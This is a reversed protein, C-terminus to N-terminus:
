LRMRSLYTQSLKEHGTGKLGKFVEHDEVVLSVLPWPGGSGALSARFCVSSTRPSQLSVLQTEGLRLLLNLTEGLSPPPLYKEEGFGNAISEMKVVIEEIDFGGIERGTSRCLLALTVLMLAEFPACMSVAKLHSSHSSDLSVKMVDSIRVIPPKDSDPNGARENLVKEAAARCIHFAKRLDGSQNATKKAAIVVADNEFLTLGPAAQELKSKLIATIQEHNYAKFICRRSGIRSQVRAHLHEPLNLTNSIGLVVLKRNGARMPWDFFNYLVSQNKTVLYDIEDLLVITVSHSEQGQEGRTFYTELKAAATEPTCGSVGSIKEWLYVYAEFPHRMEMGNLYIFQFDSSGRHESQNRKMEKVCAFVSATKGVGPGGAIFLSSAVDKGIGYVAGNLFSRIQKRESDRGILTFQGDFGEKSADSLSLKRIANAFHDRWSLGSPVQQSSLTTQSKGSNASEELLTALVPDKGAIMSRSIGRAIRGSLAGCPVLAKRHVSWFRRCYFDPKPMGLFTNLEKTMEVIAECISAPGIISSASVVDYHDTEVVERFKKNSTINSPLHRALEDLRYYWRIEIKLGGRRKEDPSAHPSNSSVRFINIIEATGWPVTYPFTRPIKEGNHEFGALAIGHGLFHKCQVTVMDGLSVKWPANQPISFQKHFNASCPKVLVSQYYESGSSSDTHFPIGEVNAVTTTTMSAKSSSIESVSCTTTADDDNEDGFEEVIMARLTNFVIEKENDNYEQSQIVGRHVLDRTMVSFSSRENGRGEYLVPCAPLFPIMHDWSDPFNSRTAVAVPGLIDSLEVVRIVGPDGAETDHVVPVLACSDGNSASSGVLRVEFCFLSLDAANEQDDSGERKDPGKIEKYISIVQCVGWCTTFPFCDKSGGPSTSETQVAVMDGVRIRWMRDKRDSEDCVELQYKSWPPNVHVSYFFNRGNRTFARHLVSTPPTNNQLGSWLLGIKEGNSIPRQFEEHVMTRCDSAGHTTGSKPIQIGVIFEVVDVLDSDKRIFDSMALGRAIFRRKWVKPSSDAVFIPQLKELSKLYFFRCQHPVSLRSQPTLINASPAASVVTRGLNLDVLGLIRSASLKEDVLNSEYLFPISSEKQKEDPKQRPLLDHWREPLECPRYLRRGEFYYSVSSGSHEIGYLALVQYVSWPGSFPFYINKNKRNRQRPFQASDDAFCVVQGLEVCFSIKNGSGDSSIDTKKPLARPDCRQKLVAVQICKYFLMSQKSILLDDQRCSVISTEPVLEAQSWLRSVLAAQHFNPKWVPLIRGARPNATPVEANVRTSVMRQALRTRLFASYARLLTKKMFTTAKPCHLGRRIPADSVLSWPSHDPGETDSLSPWGDRDLPYLEHDDIETLCLERCSITWFPMASSFPNDDARSSVIEPLRKWPKENLITSVVRIPALALRVSVTDVFEDMEVFCRGDKVHSPANKQVEDDLEDFRNFWRIEMELEPDASDHEEISPGFLSLVQGLGWHTQFPFYERSESSRSKIKLPDTLRVAIVDGICIIWSRSATTTVAKSKSNNIDKLCDRRFHHDPAPSCSASTYFSIPSIKHHDRAKSNTRETYTYVAPLIPRFVPLEDNRDLLSSPEPHQSSLKIKQRKNMLDNNTKTDPVISADADDGDDYYPMCQESNRELNFSVRTTKSNSNAAPLEKSSCVRKPQPKTIQTADQRRKKSNKPKTNKNNRTKYNEKENGPSSGSQVESPRSTTRNTDNAPVTSRLSPAAVDPIWLSQFGTFQHGREQHEEVPLESRPGMFLEYYQELKAELAPHQLLAWARRLVVPAVCKKNDNSQITPKELYATWDDRVDQLCIDQNNVSKFMRINNSNTTNSSRISPPPPQQQQNQQGHRHHILVCNWFVRYIDFYGQGGGPLAHDPWELLEPKFADTTQFRDSSDLHIQLPLVHNKLHITLLTQSEVLAQKPRFIPTFYRQDTPSLHKKFQKNWSPLWQVNAYYQADGTLQKCAFLTVVQGVAWSLKTLPQEKEMGYEKSEFAIIDGLAIKHSYFGGTKLELRGYYELRYLFLSPLSSSIAATTTTETSSSAPPEYATPGNKCKYELTEEISSLRQKESYLPDSLPSIRTVLPMGNQESTAAANTKQLSSSSSSTASASSKRGVKRRSTAM